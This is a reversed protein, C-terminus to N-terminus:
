REFSFVIDDRNSIHFEYKSVTEHHKYYIFLFRDEKAVEIKSVLVYNKGNTDYHVSSNKMDAKGVKTKNNKNFVYQFEADKQLLYYEKEKDVQKVIEVTTESLLNENITETKYSWGFIICLVLCIIAITAATAIPWAPADPRGAAAYIFVFFLAVLGLSGLIILNM